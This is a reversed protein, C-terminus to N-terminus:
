QSAQKKHFALVARGLVEVREPIVPFRLPLVRGNQVTATCSVRATGHTYVVRYVTRDGGVQRYRRLLAVEIPQMADHLTRLDKAEKAAKLAAGFLLLAGMAALGFPYGHPSSPPPPNTRRAEMADHRALVQRGTATLRYHYPQELEEIEGADSALEVAELLEEPRYPISWLVRRGAFLTRLLAVRAPNPNVIVVPLM